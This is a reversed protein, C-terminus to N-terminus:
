LNFGYQLMLLIIKPDIKTRILLWFMVSLGERDKLNVDAGALCLTIFVELSCKSIAAM